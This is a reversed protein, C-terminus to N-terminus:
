IISQMNKIPHNNYYDLLFSDSNELAWKLIEKKEKECIM